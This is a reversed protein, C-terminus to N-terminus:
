GFLSSGLRALGLYAPELWSLGARAPKLVSLAFISYITNSNLWSERTKVSASSTHIRSERSELEPWIVTPPSSLPGSCPTGILTLSIHVNRGGKRIMNAQNQRRTCTLTFPKSLVIPYVRQPLLSASCSATTRKKGVGWQCWGSITNSGDRRLGDGRQAGRAGYYDGLGVDWLGEQCKLPDVGEPAAREVRPRSCM